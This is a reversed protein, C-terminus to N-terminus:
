SYGFNSCVMEQRRRVTSVARDSTPRCSACAARAAPKCSCCVTAGAPPGQSSAFSSNGSGLPLETMAASCSGCASSHIYGRGPQDSCRSATWRRGKRCPAPCPSRCGRCGRHWVAESRRPARVIQSTYTSYTGACLLMRVWVSACAAACTFSDVQGPKLLPATIRGAAV